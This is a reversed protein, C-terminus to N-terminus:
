IYLENVNRLLVVHESKGLGPGLKREKAKHLNPVYTLQLLM